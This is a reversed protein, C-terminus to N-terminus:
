ICIYTHIDYEPLLLSCFECFYIRENNIVTVFTGSIMQCVGSAKELPDRIDM